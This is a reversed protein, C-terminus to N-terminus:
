MGYIGRVFAGTQHASHWQFCCANWHLLAENFAIQSRLCQSIAPIFGHLLDIWRESRSGATSMWRPSLTRWSHTNLLGETHVIPHSMQLYGSRPITSRLWELWSIPRCSLLHDCELIWSSPFYLIVGVTINLYLSKSQLQAEMVSQLADVDVSTHDSIIKDILDPPLRSVSANNYSSVFRLSELEHHQPILLTDLSPERPYVATPPISLSVFAPLLFMLADFFMQM